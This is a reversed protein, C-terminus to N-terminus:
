QVEEVFKLLLLYPEPEFVHSVRDHHHQDNWALMPLHLEKFITTDLDLAEDARPVDLLPIDNILEYGSIAGFYTITSFRVATEM